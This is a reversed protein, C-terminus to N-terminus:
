VKNSNVLKEIIQGLKDAQDIRNFHAKVHEHGNNGMLKREGPHDALYKIAKALAKPDGPTVPIGAGAREVVERIVGEMALVVPRGSAMYDFVKNPYVTAYLPIPKLIAICVDAAALVDPMDKKPAPPLFILNDLSLEEAQARIHAKEKGDGILVFFIDANDTQLIKAASLVIGLDNSIGHAGAYMAIFNEALNNTQRFKNGRAQPNFMGADSGNPILEISKAGASQVHDIFGPSNVIVRDANRYLFQELWESAKILIPQRLVGVAVAFAPWLDRIELLFPARKIRALAWASLSQFIPPSTGWVLDVNKVRLGLLFSSIMFSFFSFIRHFFSRHLASYTYAHLVKIEDTSDSDPTEDPEVAQSKGTLYSIPSAIITVRHGRSILYRAIEHHRTGGAENLAAFAQHILLIHM